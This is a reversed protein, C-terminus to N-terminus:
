NMQGQLSTIGGKAQSRTIDSLSEVKFHEKLWGNVQGNGHGLKNALYYLYKIQKESIQGSASALPTKTTPTIPKRPQPTPAPATAKPTEKVASKRGSGKGFKTILESAIAMTLGATTKIGKSLLDKMVAGSNEKDIKLLLSIQKETALKGTAPQEPLPKGDTATAPKKAFGNIKDTIADKSAQIYVSLGISTINDTSLMVGTDQQIEKAMAVVSVLIEKLTM